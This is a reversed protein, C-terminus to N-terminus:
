ALLAAAWASVLADWAWTVKRLIWLTACTFSNDLGCESATTDLEGALWDAWWNAWFAARQYEVLVDVGAQVLVGAFARLCLALLTISKLNKLVWFLRIARNMFATLLACMANVFLEGLSLETSGPSVTILWTLGVNAVGIEAAWIDDFLLLTGNSRSWLLTM